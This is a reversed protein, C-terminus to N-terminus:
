KCHASLLAANRWMSGMRATNMKPKWRGTIEGTRNCSFISPRSAHRLNGDDERGSATQRVFTLEKDSVREAAYSVSLVGYSHLIPSLITEALSVFSQNHWYQDERTNTAARCLPASVDMAAPAPAM